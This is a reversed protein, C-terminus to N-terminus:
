GDFRVRVGVEGFVCVMSLVELIQKYWVEMRARWRPRRLGNEAGGLGDHDSSIM